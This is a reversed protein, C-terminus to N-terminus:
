AGQHRLPFDRPNSFSSIKITQRMNVTFM